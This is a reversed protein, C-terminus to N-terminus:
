IANNNTDWRREKKDKLKRVIEITYHILLYIVMFSASVIGILLGMDLMTNLTGSAGSIVRVANLALILSFLALVFMAGRMKWKEKSFVFSMTSFFAVMGFLIFILGNQSSSYVEGSSSVLRCEDGTIPNTGDTCIIKHCVNGLQSYNGGTINKSFAQGSKTMSLNLANQTGDPQTITLLTCSTAINSTIVLDLNTNQKHPLYDEASAMVMMSIALCIILGFMAGMRAYKNNIMKGGEVKRNNIM